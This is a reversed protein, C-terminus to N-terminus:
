GHTPEHDSVTTQVFAGENQAIDVFHHAIEGYRELPYAVIAWALKPPAKRSVGAAPGVSAARVIDLDNLLLAEFDEPASTKVAALLEDVDSTFQGTLSVNNAALNAAKEMDEDWDVIRLSWLRGKWKIYSYAVTGWKDKVEKYDTIEAEDPFFRKRQNGGVLQQSQVNFVLGSIDGFKEMSSQLGALSRNTIKRPNGTFGKLEKVSTPFSSPSSKRKKM